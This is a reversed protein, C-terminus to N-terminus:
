LNTTCNILDLTQPKLHEIRTGAAASPLRYVPHKRLHFSALMSWICCRVTKCNLNAIAHGDRGWSALQEGKRQPPWSDQSAQCFCPSYVFSFGDKRLHLLAAENWWGTSVVVHGARQARSPPPLVNTYGGAKRYESPPPALDSNM